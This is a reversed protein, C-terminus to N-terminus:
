RCVYLDIKEYTPGATILIKKGLFPKPTFYNRLFRVINEPEELVDKEM